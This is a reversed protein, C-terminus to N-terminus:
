IEGLQLEPTKNYHSQSLAIFILTLCHLPIILALSSHLKFIFGHMTGIFCQCQLTIQKKLFTIWKTWSLCFFSIIIQNM